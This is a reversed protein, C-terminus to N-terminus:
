KMGEQISRKILRKAVGKKSDFARQLTRNPTKGRTFYFDKGKITVKRMKSKAKGTLKEAPIYWGGKRGKGELAYEGTGLEDWIANELPSGITAEMESEDITHKWSGKLQGQDVRSNRVAQTQIENAAAELGAIAANKLAETVKISFDEFKVEVAM